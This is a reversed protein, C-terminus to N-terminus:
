IIVFMDDFGTMQFIEMVVENINKVFLSKGMAELRQISMLLARLGSSNIFDVKEFDLILEQNSGVADLLTKKFDECTTNSIKGVINLIIQDNKYNIDIRM